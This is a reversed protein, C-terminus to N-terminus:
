YESDSPVKAQKKFDSGLHPEINVSHGCSPCKVFFSKKTYAEEESSYGAPVDRGRVTVEHLGFSFTSKCYDCTAVCGQKLIKAM